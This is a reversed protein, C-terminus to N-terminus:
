PGGARTTPQRVATPRSENVSGTGPRGAREERRRAEEEKKAQRKAKYEQYGKKAVEKGAWMVGQKVVTAATIAGCGSVLVTVTLAVGAGLFGCRTWRLIMDANERGVEGDRRGETEGDRELRL